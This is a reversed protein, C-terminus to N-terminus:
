SYTLDIFLHSTIRIVARCQENTATTLAVIGHEGEEFTAWIGDRLHTRPLRLKEGTM